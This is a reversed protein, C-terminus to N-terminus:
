VALTKSYKEFDEITNFEQYCKLEIDSVIRKLKSNSKYLKVTDKLDEFVASSNASFFAILKENNYQNTEKNFTFFNFPCSINEAYYKKFIIDLLSTMIGTDFNILSEKFFSTILGLLDHQLYSDDPLFLPTNNIDKVKKYTFSGGYCNIRGIYDPYKQLKELTEKQEKTKPKLIQHSACFTKNEHDITLYLSHEM